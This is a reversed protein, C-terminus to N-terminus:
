SRNRHLLRYAIVGTDLTALVLCVLGAAFRWDLAADPERFMVNMLGVAWFAATRLMRWGLSHSFQLIDM